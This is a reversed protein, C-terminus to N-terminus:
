KSSRVKAQRAWPHTHKNSNQHSLTAVFHVHTCVYMCAIVCAYIRVYALNYTRVYIHTHKYCAVGTYRIEQM